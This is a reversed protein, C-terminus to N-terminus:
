RKGALSLHGDPLGSSLLPLVAPPSPSSFFDFPLCPCCSSLFRTSLPRYIFHHISSSSLAILFLFFSHRSCLHATRSLGSSTPSYSRTFVPASALSIGPSVTLLALPVNTTNVDGAISRDRPHHQRLSSM